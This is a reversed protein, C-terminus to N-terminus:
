LLSHEQEEATTPAKYQLLWSLYDAHELILEGLVVGFIFSFKEMYSLVGNINCFSETDKVMKKAENWRKYLIDYNSIISSRAEAM